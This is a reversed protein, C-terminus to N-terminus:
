QTSQITPRADRLWDQRSAAVPQHACPQFCSSLRASAFRRNRHSSAAVGGLMVAGACGEPKRM